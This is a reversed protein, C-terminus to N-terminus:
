GTTRVLSSPSRWISIMRHPKLSGSRKSKLARDSPISAALNQPSRNLVPRHMTGASAKKSHTLAALPGFGFYSNATRSRSGKPIAPRQDLQFFGFVSLHSSVKATRVPSALPTICGTWLRCGIIRSGRSYASYRAGLSLGGVCRRRTNGSSSNFDCSMEFSLMVWCCALRKSLWHAPHWFAARTEDHISPCLVFQLHEENM